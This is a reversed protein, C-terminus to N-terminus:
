KWLLMAIGDDPSYSTTTGGSATVVITTIGGSEVEEVKTVNNVVNVQPNYTPHTFSFVFRM